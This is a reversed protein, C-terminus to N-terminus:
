KFTLENMKDLLRDVQEKTLKNSMFFRQRFPTWNLLERMRAMQPECQSCAPECGSLVMINALCPLQQKNVFHFCM